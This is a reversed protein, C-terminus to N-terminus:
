QQFLKNGNHPAHANNWAFASAVANTIWKQPMQHALIRMNDEALHIGHSAAVAFWKYAEQKNETVGRGNWYMMGLNYAAHAASQRLVMPFEKIVQFNDEPTNIEQVADGGLDFQLGVTNPAGAAKTYWKAAEANDKPVGLGNEYLQGLYFNPAPNGQDAVKKFWSVATTYNQSIGYGNAYMVGLGFQAESSGEEVALLFWKIAEPDDKIVKNGTQYLVGLVCGAAASGAKASAKLQALATPQKNIVKGLQVAQSIDMNKASANIGLALWAIIALFYFSTRKTM